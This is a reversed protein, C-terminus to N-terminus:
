LITKGKGNWAHDQDLFGAVARLQDAAAPVRDVHHLHLLLAGAAVRVVLEGAGAHEPQLGVLLPRPGHVQSPREGSLNASCHECLSIGRKPPM